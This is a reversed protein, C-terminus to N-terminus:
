GRDGERAEQAARAARAERAPFRDGDPGDFRIAEPVKVLQLALDAPGFPGLATGHATNLAASLAPVLSGLDLVRVAPDASPRLHDLVRFTLDPGLQEGLPLRPGTDPATMSRLPILGDDEVGFRFGEQPAALELTAPVGNFLCLLVTPSLHDMRLVPLPRGDAGVARVALNPWGSVLASRLLLGGVPGLVAPTDDPPGARVGRDVDRRAAASEAAKRRVVDAVVQDQLTDRSSQAGIGLAGGVLAATWNPDTHFFRLSEPPLMRGDPVLHGFPVAGLLVLGGLWDVVPALREKLGEDEDLARTVAARAADSRLFADLDGSPDDPAPEPAPPSWAGAPRAPTAGLTTLLPGDLLAAFAARATHPREEDGDPPLHGSTARHYLTDALGHAARKFATLQRVYASDALALARGTEFATALSVDFSGWAPDYGLLSDATGASAVRDVAAPLVPTLPGRYWGFTREGSRIRYPLPVYGAGIRRAVQRRAEPTGDTDRYPSPLRLWMEDRTAARSRDPSRTLGEALDRFHAGADPHAWFTWRCLSLLAVSTRGRFDPDPRLLPEHGELSVLHVINKTRAEPPSGPPAAAPFRGAVVVSFLGDEEIGLIPRDGTNAGRCHALYRLEDLRPVVQRFVATPIRVTECPDDPGIDAEPSLAPKLVDPDAALFGGVTTPESRAPTTTGGAIQDDTLVLLALWPTTRDAGRLPREWPLLPDGLVVHPLVEAFRGDASDPPQRALVASADVAVQPARVTFRQVARFPGGVTGAGGDPGTRLTHTAEIRYDGAPLAPLYHDHLEVDGVPITDRAPHQPSPSM